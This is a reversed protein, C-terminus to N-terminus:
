NVTGNTHNISVTCDIVVPAKVGHTDIEIEVTKGIGLALVDSPEQEGVRAGICGGFDGGQRQSLNTRCNM